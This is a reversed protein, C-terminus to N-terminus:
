KGAAQKQSERDYEPPDWNNRQMACLHDYIEQLTSLDMGDSRAAFRRKLYANTFGHRESLAMDRQSAKTQIRQRLQHCQASLTIRKQREPNPDLIGQNRLLAIISQPSVGVFDPYDRFVQDVVRSEDRSMVGSADGFKIGDQASDIPFFTSESNGGTRLWDDGDDKTQERLGEDQDNLIDNAIERMLPDDPVFIYAKMQAYSLGSKTYVRTARAFCQTLWPKSRVDCLVAMHSVDPVDLGEYAKGVTVLIDGIGESRFQRIAENGGAYRSDGNDSVALMSHLMPFHTALWETTEAARQRDYEVVILRSRYRNRRYELFHEVCRQLLGWRYDGTRAFTQIVQKVQASSATSIDVHHELSHHSYKAWGEHFVFEIPIIARDRLADRMRYTIHCEPYLVGDDDPKYNVFPLRGQDHRLITGSMLWAHHCRNVVEAAAPGWKGEGEDRCHHWEDGIFLTRNLEAFQAHCDPNNGIAQYTTVYGVSGHQRSLRIPAENKLLQELQYSPCFPSGTSDDEVQELLASRPVAWIVQGVFGGSVLMDIASFAMGTKGGGPTVWAFTVRDRVVGTLLDASRKIASLQHPRAVIGNDALRELASSVLDTDMSSGKQFNCRPCLAQMEHVNTRGSVCYPTVHDAHM